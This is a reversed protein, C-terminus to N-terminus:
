LAGEIGSSGVNLSLQTIEEETPPRVELEPEAQQQEPNRYHKLGFLFPLKQQLPYPQETNLNKNSEDANLPRTSLYLQSPNITALRLYRDDNNNHQYLIAQELVLQGQQMSLIFGLYNRKDREDRLNGLIIEADKPSASFVLNLKSVTSDYYGAANTSSAQIHMVQRDADYQASDESSPSLVNIPIPYALYNLADELRGLDVKLHATAKKLTGQEAQIRQQYQETTEFEGKGAGTPTKLMRAHNIVLDNASAFLDNNPFELLLEQNTKEIGLLLVQNPKLQLKERFQLLASRNGSQGHLYDRFGSVDAEPLQQQNLFPQLAKAEVLVPRQTPELRQSLAANEDPRLVETSANKNGCGILLFSGLVCVFLPHVDKM